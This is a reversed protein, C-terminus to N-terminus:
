TQIKVVRDIGAYDKIVSFECVDLHTHSIKSVLESQGAGIELLVCGGPKLHQKASELLASIVELGAQGGDLALVPEFRTIEPSLHALESREIYPL